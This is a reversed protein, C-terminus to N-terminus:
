DRAIKALSVTDSVTLFPLAVSCPFSTHPRGGNKKYYTFLFDNNHAMKDAKSYNKIRLIIRKLRKILIQILNGIWLIFIPANAKM